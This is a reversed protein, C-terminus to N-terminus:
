MIRQYTIDRGLVIAVGAVDLPNSTAKIIDSTVTGDLYGHKQEELASTTEVRFINVPLSRYIEWDVRFSISVSGDYYYDDIEANYIEESEGGPSIDLLELGDYGLQNQRELVGMIIYDSLKERDEADRSFVVLDFHVEFKGGYVEASESREHDIVIALKDCETARLGFALVAGPIADLNTEEYRFPFPGQRAITYRYDAYVSEGVPSDRLFIVLGDQSVTYDVGVLLPRRGDLWLQVSSPVVSDRSLQGQQGTSATFTILAENLETLYPDITFFGPINKAEDPLSQVELIYVGPPSPFVDRRSSFKELYFKNEVVWELTNGPFNSVNAQAVFSSLRGVYNDASLRIRDATTNNIIVGRQPRESFAYKNQVNGSDGKYRPHDYLIKRIEQILRKKTANTLWNKM